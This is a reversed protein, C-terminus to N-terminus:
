VRRLALLERAATAIADIWFLAAPVEGTWRLFGHIMGACDVVRTPVGAAELRQAYERGDDRLVDAAALAIVAPSLDSLQAAAIPSLEPASPSAGGRYLDWYWAMQTGSLNYGTSFERYSALSCTADLAPYLLLQLDPQAAGQAHLRLTLAAALNGGSSDGAVAFREGDAGLAHAEARAWRWAAEVDDLAAPYIHEPALRYDVAVVITSLRNALIRCLRDHSDLSGVVWGGGHAFLVLPLPATSEPRYVRVPVAGASGPAHLDRISAVVEPEGGLLRPAEEAAARLQAISPAASDPPVAFITDLLRRIDPDLMATDCTDRASTVPNSAGSNVLRAAPRVKVM